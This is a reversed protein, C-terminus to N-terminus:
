DVAVVVLFVSVLLALSPGNDTLMERSYLQFHTTVARIAVRVGAHRFEGKSQFREQPQAQCLAIGTPTRQGVQNRAILGKLM